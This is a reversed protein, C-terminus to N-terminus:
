APQPWDLTVYYVPSIGTNLCHWMLLDSPGLSFAQLGVEPVFNYQLGLVFRTVHPHQSLAKLADENAQLYNIAIREQDAFPVVLGDGLVKYVGSSKPHDARIEGKRWVGDFDLSTSAIYADPDFDTGLAFLQFQNM